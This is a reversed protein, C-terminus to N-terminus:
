PDLCGLAEGTKGAGNEKIGVGAATDEITMQEALDSLSSNVGRHGKFTLSLRRKLKKLNMMKTLHQIGNQWRRPV